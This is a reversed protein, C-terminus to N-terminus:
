LRRSIGIDRRMRVEVRAVATTSTVRTEAWGGTPSLDALPLIM